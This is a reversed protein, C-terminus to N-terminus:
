RGVMGGREDEKWALGNEEGSVPRIARRTSRVVWEVPPSDDARVAPPRALVSSSHRAHESPSGSHMVRFSAPDKAHAARVAEPITSVLDADYGRDELRNRVIIWLALDIALAVLAALLGLFATLSM